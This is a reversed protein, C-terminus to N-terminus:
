IIEACVLEREGEATLPLLRLGEHPASTLAMSRTFGSFQAKPFLTDLALCLPEHRYDLCKPPWPPRIVKGKRRKYDTHRYFCDTIGASQSALNPPDGSTLLELGSQGVHHFGTEVLFVFILWTHHHAGTIGVVQSASTPSDSSRLRYLNCHASIIANCELRPTLAPGGTIGSSQSASTPLDSTALFELGPQVVHCFKDRSFSCFNAPHPPACRYDWSSPLTLCSFQKFRPFCLNCHTSIVDICELSPLLLSIPGLLHLNYHALIAGSYELRPSLLVQNLIDLHEDSRTLRVLGLTWVESLLQSIPAPQCLM